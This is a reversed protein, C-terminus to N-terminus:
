WLWGMGVGERGMGKGVRHYGVPSLPGQPYRALIGMISAALSCCMCAYPKLKVGYREVGVRIGIISCESKRGIIM